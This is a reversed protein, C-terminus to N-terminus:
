GCCKSESKPAPSPTQAAPVASCCSSQGTPLGLAKKVLTVLTGDQKASM